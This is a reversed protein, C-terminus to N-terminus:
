YMFLCSSESPTPYHKECDLSFEDKIVKHYLRESPVMFLQCLFFKLSHCWWNFIIMNILVPLQVSHLGIWNQIDLAPLFQIVAFCSDFKNKILITPLLSDHSLLIWSFFGFLVSNFLTYDAWWHDVIWLINWIFQCLVNLKRDLIEPYEESIKCNHLCM